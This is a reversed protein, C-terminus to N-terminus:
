PAHKPMHQEVFEMLRTRFMSINESIAGLEDITTKNIKFKVPDRGRANIIMGTVEGLDAHLVGPPEGPPPLFIGWMAHVADNRKSRLQDCESFLVKLDGVLHTMTSSEHAVTVIADCLAPFPMHQTICRGVRYDLGTIRWLISQVQNELHTWNVVISGIAAHHKLQYSNLNHM